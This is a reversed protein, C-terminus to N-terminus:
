SRRARARPGERARERSGLPLRGQLPRISRASDAATLVLEPLVEGPLKVDRDLDIGIAYLDTSWVTSDHAAGARPYYDKGELDLFIGPACFGRTWTLAGQGVRADCYIDDGM